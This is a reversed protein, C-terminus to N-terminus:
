LFGGLAFALKPSRLFKKQCIKSECKFTFALHFGFFVAARALGRPSFLHSPGPGPFEGMRNKAVVVM